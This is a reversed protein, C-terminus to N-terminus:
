LVFDPSLNLRKRAEVQRQRELKRLQEMPMNKLQELESEARERTARSVQTPSIYKTPLPESRKRPGKRVLNNNQRLYDMAKGLNEPTPMLQNDSVWRFVAESNEKVDVFWAERIQAAATYSAAIITDSEQKTYGIEQLLSPTEPEPEPQRQPQQIPQRQKQRTTSQIQASNPPFTEGPLPRYTSYRVGGQTEASLFEKM